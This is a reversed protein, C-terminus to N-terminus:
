VMAQQAPLVLCKALRAQAHQLGDALKRQLEKSVAALQLRCRAPVRLEEERKRLRRLWMQLARRLVLPERPQLRLVVVETGRQGPRQRMPPDLQRQPRRPRQPPEPQHVAMEALPTAPQLLRQGGA